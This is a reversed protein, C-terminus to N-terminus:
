SDRVDGSDGVAVENIIIHSVMDTITDMHPQVLESIMEAGLKKKAFKDKM